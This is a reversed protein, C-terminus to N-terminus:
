SEIQSESRQLGAPPRSVLKSNAQTGQPAMKSSLLPRRPRFFPSGRQPRAGALAALTPPSPLLRLLKLVPPPGPSLLSEGFPVLTGSLCWHADVPSGSPYRCALQGEHPRVFLASPPSSSMIDALFTPPDAPSGRPIRQPDAPSGRRTQPIRAQPPTNESPNQPSGDSVVKGKYLILLRSHSKKPNRQM